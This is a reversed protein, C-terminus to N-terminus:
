YKQRRKALMEANYLIDQWKYMREEQSKSLNLGENAIESDSSLGLATRTNEWWRSAAQVPVDIFGGISGFNPIFGASFGISNLLEKDADSASFGSNRLHERLKNTQILSTLQERSMGVPSWNGNKALESLREIIFEEQLHNVTHILEEAVENNTMDPFMANPRDDYLFDNATNRASNRFSTNSFRRISKKVVGNLDLDGAKVETPLSGIKYADLNANPARISRDVSYAGEDDLPTIGGTSTYGEGAQSSLFISETGDGKADNNPNTLVNRVGKPLKRLPGVTGPVFDFPMTTDISDIGLAALLEGLSIGDKNRKWNKGKLGSAKTNINLSMPVGATSGRIQREIYMPAKLQGTGMLRMNSADNQISAFNPVLGHSAYPNFGHQKAFQGKYEKGARSSEPPMIAPQKFGPFKKVTEAKNYIVSGIGDINMTSIAGPNYGGKIAGQREKKVTAPILGGATFTDYQGDGNLDVPAGGGPVNSATMDPNIGRNMLPRALSQALRKQAQMANTQAEIVKLMFEEQALRDGELNNLAQQIHKNRSLAEIIGNEMKLMKEKESTVGLVDKLSQGAFKAVNALLKVFVVGVAIAVPGTLINGLGKFFGKAFDSGKGEGNDLAGTVTDVLSKFGKTWSKLDDELMIEGLAGALEKVSSSTQSVMAALTKNLAANKVAANGAADASIKSADSFINQQKALDALTARFINAQFIGASFQVLNSQQAQSLTDFTKAINQLIKDAPLVAGTLDRVAINMEELQRLSAPRQIRTFITKLGNGIVSGGRATNQQLATVLGILNDLEVGASIAVAGTRELAHILDESSVAFNIDVAALKDIIETTTLGASGFANVAATLGSVAETAKLSTLRTLILADNTRRLTEEMTLGQRSFELAAEAVVNFGQATNRAVNFLEDGFNRLASASSNMIVNIESLTKEFQITELVLGKFADTVANIVGVSAGFAIVRANSAELSKTFENASATIRGLPQTFSKDNISFGANRGSMRKFMSNLESEVRAQSRRDLRVEVDARVAAM